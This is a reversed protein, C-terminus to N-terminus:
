HPATAARRMSTLALVASDERWRRGFDPAGVCLRHRSWEDAADVRQVLKFIGGVAPNQGISLRSAADFDPGRSRAL